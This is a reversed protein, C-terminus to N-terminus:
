EKVLKIVSQGIPTNLRLFYLGAPGGIEFPHDSIGDLNRSYIVKGNVDSITLAVDKMPEEFTLRFSGNSPNPYAAVRIGHLLESVGTPGQSMKQIFVDSLGSATLNATGPGPDFDSTGRFYGTTYVNGSTDLALSRGYDFLTGGFSQVWVLNGSADLKHVFADAVGLSTLNATGAGPDFDAEETFHGTTYVNGSADIRSSRAEDGNSGGFSRAWIFNGSADMKHVFVDAAGASTQNDVGLGPDFDVTQSFYGTTYVNSSGDCQISFALDTAAGGFSRAWELNGSADLKIVFVDDFGVASLEANEVEADFEVTENFRGTILVNDFVDLTIANGRDDGAAGYTKAWMFDGAADLKQVFVDFSGASTHTATGPGPDFDATGTFTGTTYVDGLADVVIGIGYNFDNAAFSKAWLFGGSPDMKLVFVARGVSTLNAIGPGPDFDVTGQFYGSVYVNGDADAGVDYAADPWEGGITQVWLFNGSADLKHVFIDDMGASTQNSVGAGPDFDVTEEYTGVTIVNGSADTTISWPENWATGGYSRAWEFTQANVSTNLLILSTAVIRWTSNFIM